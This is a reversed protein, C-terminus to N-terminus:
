FEDDTIETMVVEGCMQCKGELFIIGHLEYEVPDSM